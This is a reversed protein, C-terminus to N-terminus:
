GHGSGGLGQALQVVVENQNLRRLRAIEIGKILDDHAMLGGHGGHEMAEGGATGIKLVHHLLSKYAGPTRQWLPPRVPGKQVPEFSDSGIDTEFEAAPMLTRRKRSEHLGRLFPVRQIVDGAM